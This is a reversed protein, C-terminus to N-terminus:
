WSDHLAKKRGADDMTADSMSICNWLIPHEDTKHYPICHWMISFRDVVVLVSNVDKKPEPLGLAFNMSVDFM